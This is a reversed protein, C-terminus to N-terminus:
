VVGHNLQVLKVEFLHLAVRHRELADRLRQLSAAFHAFSPNSAESQEPCRQKSGAAARLPTEEIVARGESQCYRRQAGRDALMRMGRTSSPSLMIISAWSAWLRMMNGAVAELFNTATTIDGLGGDTKRDLTSV